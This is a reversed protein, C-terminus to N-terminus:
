LVINIRNLLPISGLSKWTNLGMIIINTTNFFQKQTTIQKFYFLEQQIAWPIGNNKGIGNNNDKALIIDFTFQQNM